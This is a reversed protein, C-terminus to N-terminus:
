GPIWAAVHVDQLSMRSALMPALTMSTSPRMAAVAAKAHDLDARCTSAQLTNWDDAIDDVMAKNLEDIPV